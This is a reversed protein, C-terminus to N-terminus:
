NATVALKTAPVYMVDQTRKGQIIRIAKEIEGKFKNELPVWERSARDYRAAYRKTPDMYVLAVRGFLVMDVTVTKGDIDIDEAWSDTKRGVEMERIYADMILRYRETVSVGPDTLYGRLTEIREKREALRFPLDADIFADLDDVLQELMPITQSTIEDVRGLQDELAAIEREQSEVAAAQQRAYLEAATKRQLLTRFEGVMDSREDDLQNIQTQVREASRTANEGTQIARQLQSQGFAPLALGVVTAALLAGRAPTLVKKM